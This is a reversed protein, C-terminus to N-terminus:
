AVPAGVQLRFESLVTTWMAIEEALHHVSVGGRLNLVMDVGIQHRPAIVYGRGFLKSDNYSNVMRYDDATVPRGLDVNHFFMLRDCRGEGNCGFARITFELGSYDVILAPNGQGDVADQVDFGTGELLFGLEGPSLGHLLPNDLDSHQAHALSGILVAFAGVIAARLTM